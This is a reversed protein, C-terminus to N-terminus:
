EEKPRQEFSVKWDPPMEGAGVIIQSEPRDDVGHNTLFHELLMANCCGVHALVSLKSELDWNLGLKFEAYHREASGILRSWNFGKGAKWNGVCYKGPATAGYTFVENIAMYARVPFLEPMIKGRDHKTAQVIGIANQELGKVAQTM